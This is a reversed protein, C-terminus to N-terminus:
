IKKIAVLSIDDTPEAFSLLDEKIGAVIDEARCDELERMRQELHTPFYCAGDRQHELLGDTYLLLIDGAGELRWENIGYEGKFGLV